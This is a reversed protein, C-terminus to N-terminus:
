LGPHGASSGSFPFFLTSQHVLHHRYVVPQQHFCLWLRALALSGAPIERGPQAPNQVDIDRDLYRNFAMPLAAAFIM